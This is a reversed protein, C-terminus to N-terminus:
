STKKAAIAKAKGIDQENFLSQRHLNNPEVYDRDILIIEKIGLRTLLDAVVSGLAGVGVICITKKALIKQGTKGLNNYAEQREYRIHRLMDKYRM